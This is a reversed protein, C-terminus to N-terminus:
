FVATLFYILLFKLTKCIQAAYLGANIYPPGVIDTDINLSSNILSPIETSTNEVVAFPLASSGTCVPIGTSTSPHSHIIKLSPRLIMAM